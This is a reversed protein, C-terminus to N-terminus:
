RSADGADIGALEDEGSRLHAMLDHWCRFRESLGENEAPWFTQEQSSKPWEGPTGAVLFALGRATGEPEGPRRVSLGSLNALAQCIGDHEAMGGTLVLGACPGTQVQIADINENILFIVSEIIAAAKAPITGDGAFRPAVDPLWYPSGLGGVTNLFFPRPDANALLSDCHLALDPYPLAASGWTLAAGAGNVTGEVVSVSEQDDQFAISWLLPGPDVMAHATPRQLFAGTGINIYITDPRPMGESFLAAAQDGTMVALPVHAGGVRLGGFSYRSPVCNPLIQESIGFIQLLEPDWDRRQRSWLLTRGANAPDVFLPQPVVLRFALFSALPGIILHGAKEAARVALIHDLCWRMKLAGYHPSLVLGTHDRITFAHAKYAPLLSTARRDQWSLIPSLARGTRSDWCVLSARQTALGAAAINQAAPAGLVRLVGAVARGLSAVVEEPDQELMDPQPSQSSVVVSSRALAGGAADFIIARTAHGGQDLALYFPQGM